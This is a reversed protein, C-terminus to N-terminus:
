SPTKESTPFLDSLLGPLSKGELVSVLLVAMFHSLSWRIGPLLGTFFRDDEAKALARIATMFQPLDIEKCGPSVESEWEQQREFLYVLTERPLTEVQANGEDFFKAKPKETSEADLVTLALTRIIAGMDYLPDGDKANPTGKSKAYEAAFSAIDSSEVGDTPVIVVKVPTAEENDDQILPLDVTREARKGLLLDSFKM